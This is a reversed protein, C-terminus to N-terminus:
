LFLGLLENVDTGGVQSKLWNQAKAYIFQWEVKRNGFLKTLAVMALLTALVGQADALQGTLAQQFKNIGDQFQTFRADKPDFRFKGNVSQQQILWEFSIQNQASRSPANSAM